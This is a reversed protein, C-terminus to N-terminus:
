CLDKYWDNLIAAVKKGHSNDTDGFFINRWQLRESRKLSPNEQYQLIAPELEDLKDIQLSIDSIMRSIDPTLRRGTEVRFTIIPKNLACFEALVSSTDGILVDAALMAATLEVPGALFIGPVARLKSVINESMMPHLSVLLNFREELAPLADIWQHVASMGSRDWTATLLLTQKKEDFGTQKKIEQVLALTKPDAFADLRPYGGAVGVRVGQKEAMRVENESIFVFLDFANFKEPRIMKKFFHPGHKLGVKRVARIPFRHLAHRAMIVAAPFVPWTRVKIGKEALASAVKRNRAVLLFPFKLHPLLHEINAYDHEYDLYFAVGGPGRLLRLLHWWLWYPFKILLGSAVM